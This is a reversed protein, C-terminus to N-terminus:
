QTDHGMSKYYFHSAFDKDLKKLATRARTNKRKEHKIIYLFFRFAVPNRIRYKSFFIM